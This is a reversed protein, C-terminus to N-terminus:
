SARALYNFTALIRSRLSVEGTEPRAQPRRDPQQQNTPPPQSFTQAVRQANMTQRNDAVVRSTSAQAIAPGSTPAQAVQSQAATGGQAAFAALWNRQYTEPTLGRNAALAADSMRGQANGTYWVLPVKTVDNNNARLIDNVYAAAVSDQIAAPADGAREFEAGIGFKKTLSRWTSNIFQYAGSATSGRAQAQYNGGSERIRITALIKSVTDGVPAAAQTQSSQKSQDTTASPPRTIAVADASGSGSRSPRPQDGGTSPLINEPLAKQGIITFGEFKIREADYEIDDYNYTVTDGSHQVRTSADDADESMSGKPQKQKVPEPPTQRLATPMSIKTADSAISRSDDQPSKIEIPTAQQQPVSPQADGAATPVADRATVETDKIKLIEDLLGSDRDDRTLSQQPMPGITAADAPQEEPYAPEDRVAAADADLQARISALVEERNPRAAPTIKAADGETVPNTENHRELQERLNTVRRRNLPTDARSLVSEAQALDEMLRQKPLDQLNDTLRAQTRRRDAEQLQAERVAQELQSLNRTDGMESVDGFLEREREQQIAREEAAEEEESPLENEINEDEDESRSNVFERYIKMLEVALFLSGIGTILAVLWGPGPVALAAFATVLRRAAAKFLKPSRRKLFTLYRRLLSRQRNPRQAQAQAQPRQTPRDPLPVGTDLDPGPVQPGGAGSAAMMSSPQLKNNHIVLLRELLRNQETQNDLINRFLARQRFLNRSIDESSTNISNFQNSATGSSSMARSLSPFAKDFATLSLKLAGRAAGRIVRGGLSPKNASPLTEPM